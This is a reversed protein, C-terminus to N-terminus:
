DCVREFQMIWNVEWTTGDLSFAQEWRAQTASIESWLFRVQVERRGEIAVGLFMGVGDEFRGRMPPDLGERRSDAWFISWDGDPERRRFTAARYSGAPDDIVFDDVNGAGGLLPYARCSGDFEIWHTDGLLRRSLRRHRVRWTGTQFAFASLPDDM